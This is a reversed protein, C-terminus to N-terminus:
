PQIQLRPRRTAITPMARSEAKTGAAQDVVGAEAVLVTSGMGNAADTSLEPPVHTAIAM